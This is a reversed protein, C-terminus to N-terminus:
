LAPALVTDDVEAQRSRFGPLWHEAFWVVTERIGGEFPILQAPDMGIKRLTDNDATVKAHPTEGPRMPLHIVPPQTVGGLDEVTERVLDAVQNVTLHETPGVEVPEHLPLGEHATKLAAVLARAVDRVHVMDSIQEGDGYIEIPEGLLARCVFAPTIKRVKAPGYPPAVSQRPGYANVARVINVSTGNYRNFMDAYREISTKSISYTNNMWWNGVGIYVGANSSEACSSLFNLGGETNTRAAPLPNKITEQTGLCAALHIIGDVHKGLESMAVPDTVDGLFYEVNTRWPKPISRRDFIVVEHGVAQLQDVVHSGIFGAGGTVGVKV